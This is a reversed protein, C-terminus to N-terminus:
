KGISRDAPAALTNQGAVASDDPDVAFALHHAVNPAARQEQLANSVVDRIALLGLFCQPPHLVIQFDQDLLPRGLKGLDILRQAALDGFALLQLLQNALPGLLQGLLIAALVM